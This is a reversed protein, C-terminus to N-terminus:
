AEEEPCSTGVLFAEPSQEQHELVAGWQPSIPLFYSELHSPLSSCKTKITTFYHIKPLNLSHCRTGWVTALIHSSSAQILSSCHQLESIVHLDTHWLNELGDRPKPFMLLSWCTASIVTLSYLVPSPAHTWIFSFRSFSGLIRPLFSVAHNIEESLFPLWYVWMFRYPKPPTKM